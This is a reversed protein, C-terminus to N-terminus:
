DQKSNWGYFTRRSYYRAPQHVYGRPHAPNDFEVTVPKSKIPRQGMVWQWKQLVSRLPVPNKSQSLVQSRARDSSTSAMPEKLKKRGLLTIEGEVERGFPRFRGREFLEKAQEKTEATIEV